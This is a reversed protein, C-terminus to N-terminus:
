LALGFGPRLRRGPDGRFGAGRAQRRKTCLRPSIQQAPSDPM